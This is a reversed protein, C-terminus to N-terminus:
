GEKEKSLYRWLTTRSIGLQRAAAARNGNHSAVAQQVVERTIEELTCDTNVSAAATTTRRRMTREGALLEAVMSSRIYTSDTLTALTQLVHKFQTYNNPWEYQCLMEMARPEFGSIQKGLELKLSSLYLSALSPIEDSRSRLSPLHLMLCGLRNVFRRMEDPIAEGDRCVCSFILRVRRSLGTEQIAVLLEPVRERPLLEFYQFYITTDIANLPSNDHNFLSDWSKDNMLECNVLVFPKNVLSSHLYLYRAIQEKGTGNEGIIMVPQRVSALTLVEKAMSGMAGSISYFSSMFLYECEGKNMSRVGKRWHSHLPIRSPVCYFLCYRKSDMLLTQATIRYLLDRETHYFKLSGGAPVESLHNRLTQAMGAPLETPSSYFLTGDPEMVVIRGNQGQTISRLFMNEQRLRGFWLSISIAQDIAACMGEVGSTILFADLGMQRAVTHAVMDCVVMRYGEGKLRELVEPVEERTHITVIDLKYGLLDCLTHASETINPFGVIAYLDSYNEALKMASLVDYVSLRIEVVPLDTVQRILTATGGRSIICDYMNSPMSRVISVGEELDGTYVDLEVNPYAQAAREMVTQMGEYPAIGLIRTRTEVM